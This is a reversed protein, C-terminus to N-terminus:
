YSTGSSQDSDRLKAVIDQLAQLDSDDLHQSFHEQIGREHVPRARNFTRRGEETLVAYYGRRDEKSPERRVLGAREMRDILRTVGSSSLVVRNALGQMRLRGEPAASLQILVDYWSLPLGVEQLEREFTELLSGVTRILGEWAGLPEQQIM